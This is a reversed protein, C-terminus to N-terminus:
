DHRSFLRLLREAEEVRESVDSVDTRRHHTGIRLRDIAFSDSAGDITLGETEALEARRERDFFRRVADEDPGVLTYRRSFADDDPFSVVQGEKSMVKELLTNAFAALRGESPLRPFLMFRPMSLRRSRVALQSPRDNQDETDALDFLLVRHDSGRRERLNDIRFRNPDRGRRCLDILAAYEPVPDSVPEFGLLRLAMRREEAKQKVGQVVKFVLFAVLGVVALVVLPTSLESTEV